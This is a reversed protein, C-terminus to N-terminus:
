IIVFFFVLLGPCGKEGLWSASHSQNLHHLDSFCSFYHSIPGGMDSVMGVPCITPLQPIALFCPFSSCFPSYQNSLPLPPFHVPYRAPYTGVIAADGPLGLFHRSHNWTDWPIPLVLVSHSVPYFLKGRNCCKWIAWPICCPRFHTVRTPLLPPLSELHESPHAPHSGFPFGSLVTEQPQLMELCGLFAAPAFIPSGLLCFLWAPPFCLPISAGLAFEWLQLGQGSPLPAM